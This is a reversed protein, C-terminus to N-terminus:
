RRHRKELTTIAFESNGSDEFFAVVTGLVSYELFSVCHCTIAEFYVCTHITRSPM